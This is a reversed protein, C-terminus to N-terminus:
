KLNFNQNLSKLIIEWYFYQDVIKFSNIHIHKIWNIYVVKRHLKKENIVCYKRNTYPINLFLNKLEKLVHIMYTYFTGCVAVLYLLYLIIYFWIFFHIDMTLIHQTDSRLPLDIFYWLLGCNAVIKFRFHMDKKDCM